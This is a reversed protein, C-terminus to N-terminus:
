LIQVPMVYLCPHCLTVLLLVASFLLKNEVQSGLRPVQTIDQTARHAEDHFHGASFECEPSCIDILHHPIGQRQCLPLQACVTHSPTM